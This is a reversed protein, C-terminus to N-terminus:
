EPWHVTVLIKLGVADVIIVVARTMFSPRDGKWKQTGSTVWPIESRAPSRSSVQCFSAGRDTRHWIEDDMLGLMIITIAMSDIRTPPQPPSFWVWSRFIMAYEDIACMPQIVAIRGYLVVIVM